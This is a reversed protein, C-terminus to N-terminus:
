ILEEFMEISYRKKIEGEEATPLSLQSLTTSKHLLSDSIINDDDQINYTKRRYIDGACSNDFILESSEQLEEAHAKEKKLFKTVKKEFQRRTIWNMMIKLVQLAALMGGFRALGSAINEPYQVHETM